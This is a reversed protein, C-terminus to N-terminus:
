EGAEVGGFLFETRDGAQLGAGDVEPGRGRGADVQEGVREAAEAAAVRADGDLYFHRGALLDQLPQDGAANLECEDAGRMRVIPDGEIREELVLDDADGFGTEHGPRLTRDFRLAQGLEHEECALGARARLTRDILFQACDPDLQGADPLEARALRDLAGGAFSESEGE